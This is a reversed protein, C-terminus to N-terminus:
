LQIVITTGHEEVSHIAIKGGHAQIIDNAIAMGLGSGKHADGTNTGRYYRDFIRDLEEKKIGKGNDLITIHTREKKEISVEIKVDQQNHVIANYILNNIARRFLIEDVEAPVNEQKAHFEIQRDAYKPDNLIDIVLNRMLAVMNVTKKRISLEKNKLRTSLHLIDAEDDIILVKKGSM